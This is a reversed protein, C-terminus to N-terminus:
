QGPGSGGMRAQPHVVPAARLYSLCAYLLADLSCPQAGFFYGGGGASSAAGLRQALADLAEAAGGYVQSSSAGAFHQLLAKRTGRPGVWSLPWPLGAGHAPRTHAAYAEAECWTSYVLAPQSCSRACLAPTMAQVSM